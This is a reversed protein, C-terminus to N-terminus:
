EEGSGLIAGVPDYAGGLLRETLWGTAHALANLANLTALSVALGGGAVVLAQPLTRVRWYGVSVVANVGVLLNNWVVYFAPHFEVPRDTPLGVYVAPDGYYLPMFLMSLGTSLAATLLLVALLGVGFKVVLYALPTWTRLDTFLSVVRDRTTTGSLATRAAIDRGLLVITLRRELGALALCVVATVALVAVGVLM